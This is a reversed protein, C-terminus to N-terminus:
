SEHGIVSPQYSRRTTFPEGSGRPKNGVTEPTKINYPNQSEPSEDSKSHNGYSASTIRLDVTRIREGAGPKVPTQLAHTNEV